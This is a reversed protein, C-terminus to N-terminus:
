NVGTTGLARQQMDSLERHVAEFNEKTVLIMGAAKPDFDESFQTPCAGGSGQLFRSCLEPPLKDDTYRAGQFDPSPLSTSAMRTGRLDTGILFSEQLQAAVLSTGQLNAGSLETKQLQAGLLSSCQPTRKNYSCALYANTLTAQRLDAGGLDAGRLDAAVLFAGQLQSQLLNAGQLNARALITGKLNSNLLSANPLQVGVLYAGPAELGSLSRRPWKSAVWPPQWSIWPFRWSSSGSANILELAEIRGGNGEHDKANTIVAWAQSVESNRQKQAGYTLYTIAALLLALNGVLGIWELFSKLYRHWTGLPPTTEEALSWYFDDEGVPKGDAEWLDHAKRQIEKRRYIVRIQEEKERLQTIKVLRSRIWKMITNTM